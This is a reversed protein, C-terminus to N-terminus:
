YGTIQRQRIETLDDLTDRAHDDNQSQGARDCGGSIAPQGPGDSKQDSRGSRIEIEPQDLPQHFREYLHHDPLM